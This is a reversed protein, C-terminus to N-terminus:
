KMYLMKKSQILNGTQLTYVYIGSSVGQGFNNRADWIVSKTGASQTENLLTRVEEGLINYVKLIVHSTKPLDYRILTTPNFPNPYNQYLAFKLPISPEESIGTIPTIMFGENAGTNVSGSLTPNGGIVFITHGVAAAAMSHRPTLMPAVERWSNTVPDYEENLSYLDPVAGGIAYLRGNLAAAALAGRATPLDAQTFWADTTPSYAELTNFTITFGFIDFALGGVVYVLTDIVVAAANERPTPMPARSTWSDTIPDYMENTSLVGAVSNSGGIVFIKGDFEVAVHAGRLIAMNGKRQWTNSQPDYEFVQNTALRLGQVLFGGMVYLKGNAAVCTHNTLLQPMPAATSWTNTTPDFVEMINTIAQGFMLGGPAYIKGNLAALPMGQRPTPMPARTFWEGQPDSQSWSLNISSLLLITIKLSLPKM